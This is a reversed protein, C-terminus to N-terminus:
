LLRSSMRRRFSRPTRHARHHRARRLFEDRRERDAGDRALAGEGVQEIGRALEIHTVDAERAVGIEDDDRGGGGIEHRLHRVSKGSSRAVGHQEGGVLRDQNRRRHVRGHPRMRCRLAIERLQDRVADMRDPRVLALHGLAAFGAHAAHGLGVLDNRGDFSQEDRERLPLRELAPAHEHSGTRRLLRDIRHAIEGIMGRAPLAM